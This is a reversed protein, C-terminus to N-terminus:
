FLNNNENKKVEDYDRPKRTTLYVLPTKYEDINHLAEIADYLLDFEQIKDKKSNERNQPNMTRLFYTM